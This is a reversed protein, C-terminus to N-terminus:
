QRKFVVDAFCSEASTGTHQSNIQIRVGKVPPPEENFIKKYDEYVNRSESIWRGIDASGSRVVVARIKMLPPSAANGITGQPASTDWIYVIARTKSFALFLQAAQDDTKSKRFDGGKPLEIVKWKWTLVPYQKLDVDAEKQISFSTDDSRMWLANLDSNKVLKFVAEGSKEKLKWGQPIGKADVGSSFDAIVINDSVPVASGALFTFCLICLCARKSLRILRM